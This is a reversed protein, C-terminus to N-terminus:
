SGKNRAQALLFYRILACRLKTAAAVGDCLEGLTPPPLYPTSWLTDDVQRKKLDDHLKGAKSFMREVGASSAPRGLYQAAMKALDPLGAPRGSAPDAAKDHDRAKWWSLVDLDLNDEVPLALYKELDDMMAADEATPAHASAPAIPM